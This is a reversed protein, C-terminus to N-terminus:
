ITEELPLAPETFHQAAQLTAGSMLEEVLQRKFEQSFTRLNRM